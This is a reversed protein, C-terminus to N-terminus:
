ELTDFYYIKNLTFIREYNDLDHGCRNLRDATMLIGIFGHKKLAQLSYHSCSPYMRCNQQKVPSIFIQYFRVLSYAPSMFGIESDEETITQKDFMDPSKMDATIASIWFCLILGFVIKM